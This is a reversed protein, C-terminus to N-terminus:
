GSPAPPFRGRRVEARDPAVGPPTRAPAFVQDCAWNAPRAHGNDTRQRVRQPASAGPRSTHAGADRGSRTAGRGQLTPGM